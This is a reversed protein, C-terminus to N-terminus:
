FRGKGVRATRRMRRRQLLEPGNEVIIFASVGIAGNVFAQILTGYLHMSFGRGGVLAQLGEFVLEHLFTAAVFMVFRPVTTSVIFQAGLLGVLFGVLTKSLGGIGVIGGALADQALGGAMGALMGTVAGFALGLYVVATLVLNVRLTSGVFLGSLTSQLALAAGLATLM